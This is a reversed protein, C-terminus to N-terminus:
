KKVATANVTVTFTVAQCGNPASKPMSVPITTTTSANRAIAIAPSPTRNGAPVTLNSAACRAAVSSPVAATVTYTEVNLDFSNPNSWTVPLQRTQGPYILGVKGVAVGFTKSCNGNGQAAATQQAAFLSASHSTLAWGGIVAVAAIRVGTRLGRPRVTDSTRTM